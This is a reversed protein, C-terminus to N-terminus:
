DEDDECYCYDLEQGCSWCTEEEDEYDWDTKVTINGAHLTHRDDIYCSGQVTAFVGGHDGDNPDLGFAGAPIVSLLGADVGCVGGTSVEYSGDGHATNGFMFEVGDYKAVHSYHGKEEKEFKESLSFDCFKDWMDVGDVDGLGPAYCPDGIWVLTPEKFKLVERNLNHFSKDLVISNGDDEFKVKQESM